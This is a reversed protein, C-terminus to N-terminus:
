KDRVASAYAGAFVGIIDIVIGSCFGSFWM